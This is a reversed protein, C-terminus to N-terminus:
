CAPSPAACPRRQPAAANHTDSQQRSVRFPQPGPRWSRLRDRVPPLLRWANALGSATPAALRLAGPPRSRRWRALRKLNLVIATLAAQIRMAALGVARARRLGHDRKAVHHLYEHVKRRRSLEQYRPGSRVARERAEEGALRSVRRRKGSTCQAKQPCAACDPVGASYWHLRREPWYGRHPLVKGAPCVYMDREADYTFADKSLWASKGKPCRPVYTTVGRSQLDGLGDATDYFADAAVETVPYPDHCVHDLATAPREFTTATADTVLGSQPDVAFSSQYSFQAPRGGKKQLGAEPDHRNVVRGEGRAPLAAEGAFLRELYGRVDAEGAPVAVRPGDEGAQAKVTTADVTRASSVELGQAVCQEVIVHLVSRFWEPGLRQRWHTFSAHAPLSESLNLGLFERFSLRDACEEVLQRDSPIGFLYGILMMKVMLVPDISPRGGAAFHPAALERVFELDVREGIRVLLRRGPTDPTEVVCLAMAHQQPGRRGVM